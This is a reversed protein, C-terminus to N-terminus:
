FRMRSIRYFVRQAYECITNEHLSYTLRAYECITFEQDSDDLYNKIFDKVTQISELPGFLGQLIFQDPFQIRIVTCRYKNLYDLTRKDQDLQRQVETLLPADEFQERRRKADRMLIRADRLDLDFFSDPLEDRPLARTEAQDFM